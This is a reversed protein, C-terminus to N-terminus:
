WKKIINLSSRNEPRTEKKEERKPFLKKVMM